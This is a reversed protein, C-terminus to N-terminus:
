GIKGSGLRRWGSPTLDFLPEVGEVPAGAARGPQATLGTAPPEESPLPGADVRRGSAGEVVLLAARRGGVVTGAEDLESRGPMVLRGGAEEAVALGARGEEVSRLGRAGEERGAVVEVRVRGRAGGGLGSRKERGEEDAEAEEGARRVGVM